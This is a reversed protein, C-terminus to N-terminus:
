KKVIEAIYEYEYGKSLAFDTLKKMRDYQNKFTTTREKKIILQELTQFYEHDNIEKMAEQISYPSVQRFKLEQKIKIRGWQKMRFKGRAFTRAFREEDLFNNSILDALIEELTDGYISYEILKYRVEQHCREQLACYKQINIIAEEKSWYKKKKDAFDDTTMIFIASRTLDAM